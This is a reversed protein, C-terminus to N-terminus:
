LLGGGFEVFESILVVTEVIDHYLDSRQLTQTM